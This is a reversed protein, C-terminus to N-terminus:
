LQTPIERTRSSPSWYLDTVWSIILLLLACPCITIITIITDAIFLLPWTSILLLPWTSILLLPWTSILLLPWTDVHLAAKETVVASRHREVCDVLFMSLRYGVARNARDNSLRLTKVSRVISYDNGKVRTLSAGDFFLYQM